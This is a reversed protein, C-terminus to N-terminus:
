VPGIERSARVRVMTETVSGTVRAGSGKEREGGSGILPQWRVTERELWEEIRM